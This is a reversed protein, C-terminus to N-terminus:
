RCWRTTAGGHLALERGDIFWHSRGGASPPQVQLTLTRWGAQSGLTETTQNHAQWPEVRLTQRANAMLRTRDDDGAGNPLYQWHPASFEPDFGHKLPSTAYFTQVVRDRGTGSAPKDSLWM